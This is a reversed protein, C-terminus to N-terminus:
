PPARSNLLVHLQAIFIYTGFVDKSSPPPSNKIAFVVMSDANIVVWVRSFLEVTCPM